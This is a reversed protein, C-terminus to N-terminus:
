LKVKKGRFKSEMESLSPEKKPSGGRHIGTMDVEDWAKKKGM